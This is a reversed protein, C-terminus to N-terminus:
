KAQDYRRILFKTAGLVTAFTLAGYHPDIAVRLSYMRTQCLTEKARCVSRHQLKHRTGNKSDSAPMVDSSPPLFPGTLWSSRIASHLLFFFQALVNAYKGSDLPEKM